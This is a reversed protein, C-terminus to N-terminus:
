LQDNWQTLKGQFKNVVNDRIAFSGSFHKTKTWPLKKSGFNEDDDNDNDDDDDDDVDDNVDDFVIREDGTL